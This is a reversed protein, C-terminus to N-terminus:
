GRTRNLIKGIIGSFAGTLPTPYVHSGPYCYSSSEFNGIKLNLTYSEGTELAFPMTFDLEKGEGKKMGPFSTKSEMRMEKNIYVSNIQWLHGHESSPWTCITHTGPLDSDFTYSNYYGSGIYCYKGGGVCNECGYSKQLNKGDAEPCDIGIMFYRSYSSSTDNIKQYNFRITTGAKIDSLSFCYHNYGDVTANTYITDSKYWSVNLLADSAPIDKKAVVYLKVVKSGAECLKDEINFRPLWYVKDLSVPLKIVDKNVNFNLDTAEFSLKVGYTHYTPVTYGSKSTYEMDFSLSLPVGFEKDYCVLMFFSVNGELSVPYGMEKVLENPDIDFRFNDCKRGIIEKEGLYSTNVIGKEKWEKIKNVQDQPSIFGSQQLLTQTTEIERCSYNSFYSYKTCVITGEPITYVELKRSSSPFYQYSSTEIKTTTKSTNEYFVLNTTGKATEWVGNSGAKMELSYTLNYKKLSAAKQYANSLIDETSVKSLQIYGVGFLSIVVILFVLILKTNM